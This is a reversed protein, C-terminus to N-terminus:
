RPRTGEDVMGGDDDGCAAVLMSMALWAGVRKKGLYAIMKM